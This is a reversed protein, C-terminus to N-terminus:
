LKKCQFDEKIYSKDPFAQRSFLQANKQFSKINIKKKNLFAKILVTFIKIKM